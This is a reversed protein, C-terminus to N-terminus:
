KISNKLQTQVLKMLQDPANAIQELVGQAVRHLSWGNLKAAASLREHAQPSVHVILSKFGAKKYFESGGLRKAKM